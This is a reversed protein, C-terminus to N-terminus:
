AKLLNLYNDKSIGKSAAIFLCTIVPIALIGPFVIKRQADYDSDQNVRNYAFRVAMSCLLLAVVRIKWPLLSMVFCAVQSAVGIAAGLAVEKKGNDEQNTDIIVINARSRTFLGYAAGVGAGVFSASFCQKLCDFM